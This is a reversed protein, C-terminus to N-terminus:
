NGKCAGDGLADIQRNAREDAQRNYPAPSPGEWSVDPTVGPGIATM